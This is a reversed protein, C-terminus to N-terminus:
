AAIKILPKEKGVVFVFRKSAETVADGVKLTVKDGSIANVLGIRGVNNGGILFAQSGPELKFHQSIKGEPVSFVVTDGTSHSAEGLCTRGDHLSLQVKGGKLSRKGTVKCPRISAESGGIPVLRLVGNRDLLMRFTQGLEKISLVDMLGIMFKEEKRRIGNVAIEKSNLVRKGEKRTSVLNLVDKLVTILPMGTSMSFSGKPRSIFKKGKRSVMWSSPVTVRKLHKNAM